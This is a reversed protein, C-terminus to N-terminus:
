RIVKTCTVVFRMEDPILETKVIAVVVDLHVIQTTLPEFYRMEFEHANEPTVGIDICFKEVACLYHRTIENTLKEIM